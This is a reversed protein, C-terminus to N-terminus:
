GKLLKLAQELEKIATPIDEYNLASIAFKARKQAQVIIEDNMMMKNIEDKSIHRTRTKSDQTIPVTTLSKTDTFSSVSPRPPIGQSVKKTTVTHAQSIHPMQTVQPIQPIQPIQPVQTVPPIPPIQPILPTTNISSSSPKSPLKPAGTSPVKTPATPLGLTYEGKLYVPASPLGLDLEREVDQPVTPLEPPESPYKLDTSSSNDPPSGNLDSPPSQLVKQLDDLETSTHPIISETDDLETNNNYAHTSPGPSQPITTPVNPLGTSTETLDDNATVLASRSMLQKLAKEEEEAEEEEEEEQRQQDKQETNKDEQEEQEEEPPIYDNPNQNSRYAKLIRAAHFKAYKIKMEIEETFIPNWLKLLNMFVVSAM